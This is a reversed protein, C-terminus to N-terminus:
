GERSRIHGADEKQAAEIKLHKIVRDAVDEVMDQMDQKSVNTQQATLAQRITKFNDAMEKTELAGDFLWNKAINELAALADKSNM